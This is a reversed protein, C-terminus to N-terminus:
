LREKHKERGKVIYEKVRDVLRTIYSDNGRWLIYTGQVLVLWGHVM